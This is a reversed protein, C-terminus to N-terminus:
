IAPKEVGASLRAYQRPWSSPPALCLSDARVLACVPLGKRGCVAPNTRCGLTQKPTELPHLPLHFRNSLTPRTM